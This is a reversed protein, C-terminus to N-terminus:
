IKRAAIIAIPANRVSVDIANITAAIVVPMASTIVNIASPVIIKVASSEVALFGAHCIYLLAILAMVPMKTLISGIAISLHYTLSRFSFRRLIPRWTLM